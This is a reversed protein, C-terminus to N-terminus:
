RCSASRWAPRWRLRPTKWDAPPCVGATRPSSRWCATRPSSRCALTVLLPPLIDKGVVRNLLVSQVAYGIAFMAPIAILLAVGLGVGFAQAIAFILFAALVIMDGHALNVVRMVGFILSLGAAFLAYLGGLLVGQLLTDIALIM